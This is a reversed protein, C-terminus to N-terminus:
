STGMAMATTTGSGSIGAFVPSAFYTKYEVNARLKSNMSDLM